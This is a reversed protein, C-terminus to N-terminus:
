PKAVLRFCSDADFEGARRPMLGDLWLEDGNFGNIIPSWRKFNGLRADTWTRYSKGDEGKFCLIFCKGAGNSSGQSEIVKTLKAKM